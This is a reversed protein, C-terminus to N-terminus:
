ITGKEFNSFLGVYKKTKDNRDNTLIIREANVKLYKNREMTPLSPIFTRNGANGLFYYKSKLGFHLGLSQKGRTIGYRKKYVRSPKIFERRSKILSLIQILSIKNNNKM